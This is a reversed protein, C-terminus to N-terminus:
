REKHEMHSKRSEHVSIIVNQRIHSNHKTKKKKVENEEWTIFDKFIYFMENM